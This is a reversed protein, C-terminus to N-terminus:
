KITGSERNLLMFPRWSKFREHFLCTEPVNILSLSLSLSLPLSLPLCLPLSLSLSTYQSVSIFDFWWTCIHMNSKNHFLRCLSVSVYLLILVCRKRIREEERGRKREEERGGEEEEPVKFSRRPRGRLFIFRESLSMGSNWSAPMSVRSLSLTVLIVLIVLCVVISIYM